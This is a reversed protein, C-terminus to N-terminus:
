WTDHAAHAPLALHEGHVRQRARHGPFDLGQPGAARGQAGAGLDGEGQARNHGWRDRRPGSPAGGPHAVQDQPAQGAPHLLVASVHRRLHRRLHHLAVEVGLTGAAARFRPAAVLGNMGTAFISATYVLTSVRAALEKRKYFLSIIYICGPYVPAAILGLFFRQILLGHGNHLM